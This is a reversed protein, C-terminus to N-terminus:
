LKKRWANGDSQYVNIKKGSIKHSMEISRVLRAKQNKNSILPNCRIIHCRYQIEARLIMKSCHIKIVKGRFTTSSPGSQWRQSKRWLERLKHTMLQKKEKALSNSTQTKTTWHSSEKEHFEKNNYQWLRIFQALFRVSKGGM